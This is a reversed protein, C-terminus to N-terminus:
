RILSALAQMDLAGGSASAAAYLQRLALAQRAAALRQGLAQGQARLRANALTILGARARAVRLKEALHRNGARLTAAAARQEELHRQKRARSRRASERNSVKRRLRRERDGDDGAVAVAGASGSSTGEEPSSTTMPLDPSLAGPTLLGGESPSSTAMPVELPSPAAPSLLGEEPSSTLMPLLDPSSSPAPVPSTQTPPADLGSALFALFAEFDHDVDSLAM